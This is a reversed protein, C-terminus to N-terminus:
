CLPSWYQHFTHSSNLCLHFISISKGHVRNNLFDNCRFGKRNSDYGLFIWLKLRPGLKNPIPSTLHPYCVYGFVRLTSVNPVKHFLLEYPSYFSITFHPIRNQVYFVMFLAEVWFQTPLKRQILLMWVFDFSKLPIM